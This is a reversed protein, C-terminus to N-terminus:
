NNSSNAVKTYTTSEHGKFVTMTITGSAENKNFRIFGNLYSFFIRDSSLSFIRTDSQNNRKIYLKENELLLNIKNDPSSEKVYDGIYNELLAKDIFFDLTDIPKNLNMAIKKYAEIAYLRYYHIWTRHTYIGEGRYRKVKNKYKYNNLRYDIAEKSNKYNPETYWAYNEEFDDLNKSVLEWVKDNYIEIYPNVRNHLIDLDEVAKNYKSPIADVNEMLLSYARNSTDYSAWSTSVRWLGSSNENAYDEITLDTNLVLSALSDKIRYSNILDTSQNIDFELEKLVDEFLAEIKVQTQRQEAKKNLSLAILIGIIVLIIEGFAYLLYKGVKNKNLLEQRIKRFFKIM